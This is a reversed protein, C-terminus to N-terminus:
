QQGTMLIIKKRKDHNTNLKENRFFTGKVESCERGMERSMKERKEVKGKVAQMLGCRKFKRKYKVNKKETQESHQYIKDVDNQLSRIRIKVM